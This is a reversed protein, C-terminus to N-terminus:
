SFPKKKSFISSTKRKDENGLLVWDGGCRRVIKNPLQTPYGRGFPSYFPLMIHLKDKIRDDICSANVKVSAFSSNTLLKSDENIYKILKHLVTKHKIYQQTNVGKFIYPKDDLFSFNNNFMDDSKVIDSIISKPISQKLNKPEPLIIPLPLPINNIDIPGTKLKSRLIVDYVESSNFNYQYYKDNKNLRNFSSKMVSFNDAFENEDTYVNYGSRRLPTGHILTEVGDINQSKYM